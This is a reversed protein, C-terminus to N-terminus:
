VAELCGMVDDLSVGLVYAAKHAPPATRWEPPVPADTPYRAPGVTVVTDLRGHGYGPGPAMTRVSVEPGPHVHRAHPPMVLHEEDFIGGGIYTLNPVSGLWAATYGFTSPTIIAHHAAALTCWDVVVTSRQLTVTEFLESCLRQVYAVYPHPGYTRTKHACIIIAHRVGAVASIDLAEKWARASPMPYHRHKKEWVDGTRIHICVTDELAEYQVRCTQIVERFVDRLVDTHEVLRRSEAMFRSRMCWSAAIGGEKPRPAPVFQPLMRLLSWESPPRQLQFPVNATQAIMRGHCYQLIQNGQGACLSLTVGKKPDANLWFTKSM